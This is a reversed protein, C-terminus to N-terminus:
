NPEFEERIEGMIEYWLKKNRGSYIFLIDTEMCRGGLSFQVKNGPCAYMACLKDERFGSYMEKRFGEFDVREELVLGMETLKCNIKDIISTNSYHNNLALHSCGNEM